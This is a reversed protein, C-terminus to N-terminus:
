PKMETRGPKREPMMLARICQSSLGQSATGLTRQSEGHNERQTGQIQDRLLTSAVPLLQLWMEPIRTRKVGWQRLGLPVRGEGVEAIVGGGWLQEFDEQQKGKYVVPRGLYAEM